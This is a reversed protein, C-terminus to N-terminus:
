QFPLLSYILWLITPGAIGTISVAINASSNKIVGRVMELATQESVAGFKNLTTHKVNLMDIKAQNSYTIFGRDFYTSSGSESTLFASLNGGTCSEAVAITLSKQKLIKTLQHM